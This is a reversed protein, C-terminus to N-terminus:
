DRIEKLREKMWDIEEQQNLIIEECLDKIASDQLPAKECMLIAGAHHPIMSRLFQEDSIATQQRIFVFFMVLAIISFIIILHNMKKNPYMFNMLSLELILMPMTMLAAMYVQNLNLFLNASRDVMSYMIVYMALFHLFAM